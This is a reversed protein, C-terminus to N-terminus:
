QPETSFGPSNSYQNDLLFRHINAQTAMIYPYVYGYVIFIGVLPILSTLGWLIFSLQTIFIDGRHGRTMLKSEKLCESATKEPNEILIYYAQMYDITAIIGPVIFLLSWLLVYLTMLLYLRVTTWFLKSSTFAYFIDSAKPKEGYTLSLYAKQLGLVLPGIVIYMVIYGVVGFILSMTGGTDASADIGVGIANVIGVVMGAAFAIGLYVLLVLALPGLNPKIQDKALKKFWVRNFM